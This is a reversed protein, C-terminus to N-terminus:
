EPTNGSVTGGTKKFVGSYPSVAVGGGEASANKTIIGGSMAFEGYPAVNVGGGKVASTNSSIEGGTMTFLSHGDVFVGGGADTESGGNGSVLGSSMILSTYENLYIGGGYGMINSYSDTITNNKITGGTMVMHGKYVLVGGGIGGTNGSIEGGAIIFEGDSPSGATGVCVAGGWLTYGGTLTLNDGLTVTNNAIYLVRGQNNSNRNANLVGGRAPDGELVIPPYNGKGSIVIMSLDRGFSGSATITGSVVIVASKGAPWKGGQYSRRIRDLAAQVSALPQSPDTGNGSDKGTDSVYWVPNQPSPNGPDPVGPGPVNSGPPESVPPAGGPIESGPAMPYNCGAVFLLSVFVLFVFIKQYM